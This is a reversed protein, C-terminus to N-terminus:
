TERWLESPLIWQNKQGGQISLIAHGDFLVDIHMSPSHAGVLVVASDSSSIDMADIWVSRWVSQETSDTLLAGVRRTTVHVSPLFFLSLDRLVPSSSQLHFTLPVKSSSEGDDWALPFTSVPSFSTFSAIIYGKYSFQQIFSTEHWGNRDSGTIFSWSM